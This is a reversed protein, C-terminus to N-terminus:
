FCIEISTIRSSLCMGQLVNLKTYAYFQIYNQFIGGHKLKTYAYFQFIIKLFAVMNKVLKVLNYFLLIRSSLCMAELVNLKTYEKHLGNQIRWLNLSYQGIDFNYFQFIIKLFAVMNKVLKVLNYFLLIRSSLCM